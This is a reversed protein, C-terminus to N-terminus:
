RISNLIKEPNSEITLCMKIKDLEAETEIENLGDDGYLKSSLKEDYSDCIQNYGLTTRYSCPNDKYKENM